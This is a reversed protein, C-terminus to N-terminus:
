RRTCASFTTPPPSRVWGSCARLLPQCLACYSACHMLCCMRRSTCPATSANTTRYHFVLRQLRLRTRCHVGEAVAEGRYSPSKKISLRSTRIWKIMTIIQHAPRAGDFNSNGKGPLRIEVKRNAATVGDVFADKGNGQIYGM